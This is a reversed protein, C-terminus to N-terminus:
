KKKIEIFETEPDKVFQINDFVLDLQGNELINKQQLSYCYFLNNNKDFHYYSNELILDKAFIKKGHTLINTMYNTAFIIQQTKICIVDNCMM